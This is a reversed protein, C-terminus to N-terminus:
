RRMADRGANERAALVLTYLQDLHVQRRAVMWLFLGSRDLVTPLGQVVSAMPVRDLCHLPDCEGGSALGERAAKWHPVVCADFAEAIGM